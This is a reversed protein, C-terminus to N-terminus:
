PTPSPSASEVPRERQVLLRSLRGLHRAGTVLPNRVLPYVPGRADLYPFRTPRGGMSAKFREVGPKGGSGLFNVCTRGEQCCAALLRDYILNTPALTRQSPTVASLFPTIQTGFRLVLVGAIMREDLRASWLQVRESRHRWLARFFSTGFHAPPYWTSSAEAHLRLFAEFDAASMRQHVTVGRREAKRVHYRTRADLGRWWADYGLSLDPAHVLGEANALAPPLARPALPNPVVTTQFRSWAGLGTHSLLSDQDTPELFSAGIVGGYTGFPMSHLATLGLTRHVQVSPLVCRMGSGFSFLYPHPRFAPFAAVLVDCWDPTSFFTAAPDSECCQWWARREM